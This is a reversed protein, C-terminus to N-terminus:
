RQHLDSVFEVLQCSAGPPRSFAGFAGIECATSLLLATCTTAESGAFLSNMCPSARNHAARAGAGSSHSASFVTGSVVRDTQSESVWRDSRHCGNEAMIKPMVGSSVRFAVTEM